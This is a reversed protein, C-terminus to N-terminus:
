YKRIFNKISIIIREESQNQRVAQNLISNLEEKWSTQETKAPDFGFFISKNTNLSRGTKKECEKTVYDIMNRTDVEILELESLLTKRTKIGKDYMIEDQDKIKQQLNNIKIQLEAKTPNTSM